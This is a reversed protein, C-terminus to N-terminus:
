NSCKVDIEGLPQDNIWGYYLTIGILHDPPQHKKVRFETDFLMTIPVKKDTKREYIYDLLMYLEVKGYHHCGGPKKTSRLQETIYDITHERTKMVRKGRRKMTCHALRRTNSAM